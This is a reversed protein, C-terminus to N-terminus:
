DFKFLRDKKKVNFRKKRSISDILHYYFCFTYIKRYQTLETFMNSGTAIVYDDITTDTMSAYSKVEITSNYRGYKSDRAALLDYRSIIRLVFLSDEEPSSQVFQVWIQVIQQVRITDVLVEPKNQGITQMGCLLLVIILKIKM